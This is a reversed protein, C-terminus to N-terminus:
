DDEPEEEWLWRPGAVPQVGQDDVSSLLAPLSRGDPLRDGAMVEKLPELVFRREGLRPHPIQLDPEDVTLAGFFLIDVDVARPGWRHGLVRGCVEEAEKCFELLRRPTCAVQAKLVANLFPPQDTVGWPETEYLSSAQVIEVGARALERVACRLNERRRGLNAGLGLFVTVPAM